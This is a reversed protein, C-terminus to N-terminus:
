GPFEGTRVTHAFLEWGQMQMDKAAKIAPEGDYPVRVIAASVTGRDLEIMAYSPRPDHDFPLGVSGANVFLCGGLHRVFARHCHGFAVGQSEEAPRLAALKENSAWPMVLVYNSTPSAHFFDFRIGDWNETLALPLGILWDRDHSPLADMHREFDQRAAIQSENQAPFRAPHFDPHYCGDANGLVVPCGLARVRDVCERPLPGKLTIDGLCLLRDVGRHDMDALVAELAHFNSHIDSFLAFRM